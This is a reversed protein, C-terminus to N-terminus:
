MSSKTAVPEPLHFVMDEGLATWGERRESGGQDKLDVGV